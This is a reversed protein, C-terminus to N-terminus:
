KNSMTNLIIFKETNKNRTINAKKHIINNNINGSGGLDVRVSVCKGQVVCKRYQAPPPHQRPPSHFRHRRSLGGTGPAALGGLALCLASGHRGRRARLDSSCVDSSWDSIRMEYATKQM